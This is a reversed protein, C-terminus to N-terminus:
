FGFFRFRIRDQDADHVWSPQPLSVTKGGAVYRFSWAKSSLKCMHPWLWMQTGPSYRRFDLCRGLRSVMAALEGGVNRAGAALQQGFSPLRAAIM